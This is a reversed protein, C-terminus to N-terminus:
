RLEHMNHLARQFAYNDVRVGQVFPRELNAITLMALTILLTLSFVQLVHLRYISSGFVTVSVITLVGGVILVCWFIGPLHSASQLLRTRRCQTLTRLESLAQDLATIESPSAVQVATLTKWMSQNIQHSAEPLRGAALEPWDGDIVAQAYEQAERQIRARPESPLGDALRYVNQLASAELEINLRIALLNSWGAYLMFGMIVAHTTALVSLQWGILDERGYRSKVPWVRNIAVMFLLAGGMVLVLILVNGTPSLM